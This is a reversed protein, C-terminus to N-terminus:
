GAGGDSVGTCSTGCSNSLCVALKGFPTACNSDVKSLCGTLCTSDSCSCAQYCTLYASCSSEVTSLPGSCSGQLCSSCQASGAGSQQSAGGVCTLAGSGGGGTGGGGGGNSNSCAVFTAMAIAGAFLLPMVTKM